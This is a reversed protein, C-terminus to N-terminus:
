VTNRSGVIRNETDRVQMKAWAEKGLPDDPNGEVKCKGAHIYTVGM